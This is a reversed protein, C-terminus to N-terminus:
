GDLQHQREHGGRAAVTRARLAHAEPQAAVRDAPGHPQRGALAAGALVAAAAAVLLGGRQPAPHNRQLNLGWTQDAGGAYRLTRFPIAFEASWGYDGVRTRVRWSGDWNLNFGGGSGGQQGGMVISGGQGENTVQGDYEIGNPNTGFVFGNQRDRYTDLILRFSDTDDLPSDRRAEAIVITSPDRDYCVVAVLLTDSTYAIRV